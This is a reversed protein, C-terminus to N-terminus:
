DKTLKNSKLIDINLDGTIIIPYKYKTLSELEKDLITLFALKDIGPRVYVSMVRLFQEDIQVSAVTTDTLSTNLERVITAGLGVQIMPRGGMRRIRSRSIVGNYEPLLYLVNKDSNEWWTESFCLIRPPPSELCTFLAEVDAYHKKSSRVNLSFVNVSLLSPNPPKVFEGINTGKGKKHERKKNNRGM